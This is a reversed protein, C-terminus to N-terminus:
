SNQMYIINRCWTQPSLKFELVTSANLVGGWNVHSHNTVRSRDAAQSMEICSGIVYLLTPGLREWVFEDHWTWEQCLTLLAQARKQVSHSFPLLIYNMSNSLHPCCHHKIHRETRKCDRDWNQGSSTVITENTPIPWRSTICTQFTNYVWQLTVWLLASCFLM